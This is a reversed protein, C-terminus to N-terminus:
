EFSKTADYIVGSELTVLMHADLNGSKNTEMITKM